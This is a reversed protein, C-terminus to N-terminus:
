TVVILNLPFPFTWHLCFFKRAVDRAVDRSGFFQSSMSFHEISLIENISNLQPFDYLPTM